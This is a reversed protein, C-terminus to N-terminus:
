GVLEFLGDRKNVVYVQGNDCFLKGNRIECSCDVAVGEDILTISAKQDALRNQEWQAHLTVGNSTTAAKGNLKNNTLQGEVKFAGWRIEGSTFVGKSFKGHLTVEEETWTLEGDGDMLGSILHGRFCCGEGELQAAQNSPRAQASLKLADRENELQRVKVLYDALQAQFSKEQDNCLKRLEENCAALSESEREHGSAKSIRRSHALEDELKRNQSTLRAIESVCEGSCQRLAAKDGGVLMQPFQGHQPSENLKLKNRRLLNTFESHSHLRLGVGMKAQGESVVFTFHLPQAVLAVGWGTQPNTLDDVILVCTEEVGAIHLAVCFGAVPGDGLLRLQGPTLRGCFHDVRASRGVLAQLRPYPHQTFNFPTFSLGLPSYATGCYLPQSGYGFVFESKSLELINGCTLRQQINTKLFSASDSWVFQKYEASTVVEGSLTIEATGGNCFRFVGHHLLGFVVGEELQFDGKLGVNGFNVYGSVFHGQRFLGEVVWGEGSLKGEGNGVEGGWCWEVGNQSGKSEGLFRPLLERSLRCYFTNESVRLALPLFENMEM